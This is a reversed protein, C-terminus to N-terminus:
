NDNCFFIRLALLIANRIKKTIGKYPGYFVM